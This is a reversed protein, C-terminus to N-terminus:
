STGGVDIKQGAEFPADVTLEPGLAYDAADATRVETLHRRPTVGAAEFHATQPKNVKRPDIQGYAIQVANYGDKEPTRVQTVVNPAVEIVTVPVLKGNEDWVQTMGLKTGLLGKSIKESTHAM